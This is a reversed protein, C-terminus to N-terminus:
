LHGLSLFKPNKFAEVRARIDEPSMRGGLLQMLLPGARTEFEEPGFKKMALELAKNALADPHVSYCFEELGDLYTTSNDSHEATESYFKRRM